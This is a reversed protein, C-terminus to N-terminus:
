DVIKGYKETRFACPMRMEARAALLKAKQGLGGEVCIAFPLARPQRFQSLEEFEEPLLRLCAALPPAVRVTARLAIEHPLRPPAFSQILCM